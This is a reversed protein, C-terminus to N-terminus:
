CIFCYLLLCFSLYFVRNDPSLEPKQISQNLDERNFNEYSASGCSGRLDMYEYSVDDDDDDDQEESADLSTNKKRFRISSETRKPSEMYLYTDLQGDGASSKSRQLNTKSTERDFERLTASRPLNVYNSSKASEPKSSRDVIPAPSHDM